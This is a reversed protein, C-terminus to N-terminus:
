PEQEIWIVSAPSWWRKVITSWRGDWDVIFGNTNIDRAFEELSKDSDYIYDRYSDAHSLGNLGSERVRIKFKNM